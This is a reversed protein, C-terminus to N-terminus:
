ETELRHRVREKCPKTDPTRKCYDCLGQERLAERRALEEKLRSEPYEDLDIPYGM